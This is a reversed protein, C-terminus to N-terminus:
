DSYELTYTVPYLHASDSYLSRQKRIRFELYVPLDANNFILRTRSNVWKLVGVCGTTNLGSKRLRKIYHPKYQEIDSM